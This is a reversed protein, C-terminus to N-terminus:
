IGGRMRQMFSSHARQAQPQQINSSVPRQAETKKGFFSLKVKEWNISKGGLKLFASYSYIWCDLAENRQGSPLFWSKLAVGKKYITKYKESTLNRYFTETMDSPFHIMKAGPKEIALRSYLLDKATDTGIPWLMISNNKVRGKRDVEQSSPKGLIPRCPFQSGQIAMFQNPRTSVFNYVDQKKHRSDVASQIVSVTMGSAHRYSYDIIDSISDWVDQQSPDGYIENYFIIWCEEGEGWANVLIALRNDQVDIGATLILGGHPVELMQYKDAREMLKKWPPQQGLEEFSKSLRTTVFAKYPEINGKEIERKSEVFERALTEWSVWGYPSALANVCYGKRKKNKNKRTETWRYAALMVNKEHEDILHHCYKCQYKATDFLHEDGDKEWIIGYGVDAGGWELEQYEGCRPCPLELIQMNTKKYEREIKSTERDTITSTILMKYNEGFTTGRNRILALPDGERGASLPFKDYDDIIFYKISLQRYPMKSMAGTFLWFGGPFNKKLIKERPKTDYDDEILTQLENMESMAPKLKDESYIKALDIDPMVVMTPAPSELAIYFLWNLGIQTKGWQSPTITVVEQVSSQPSLDQMIERMPPNRDTSFPGPEATFGIPLRVNQDSWADVFLNSPPSMGKKLGIIFPFNNM